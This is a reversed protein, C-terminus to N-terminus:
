LFKKLCINIYCPSLVNPHFLFIFGHFEMKENFYVIFGLLVLIGQGHPLINFLINTM